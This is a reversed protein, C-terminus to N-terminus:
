RQMRKKEKGRGLVDETNRRRREERQGEMMRTKIVELSRRITMMKERILRMEMRLCRMEENEEVKREEMEEEGSGFRRRVELM